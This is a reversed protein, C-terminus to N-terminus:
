RMRARKVENKNKRQGEIYCEVEIQVSLEGCMCLEIVCREKAEGLGEQKAKKDKRQGKTYTVKWGENGGDRVAGKDRGLGSAKTKNEIRENVKQKYLHCM